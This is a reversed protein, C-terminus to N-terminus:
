PQNKVCRVSLGYNATVMRSSPTNGFNITFPIMQFFATNVFNARSSYFYAYQGIESYRVTDNFGDTRLGGPLVTFGTENTGIPENWHATGTEMLEVGRKKTQDPYVTDPTIRYPNCLTEWESLVPMHWDAPCLKGTMAAGFNYLRGYDRNNAASDNNYWCYAGTIVYGTDTNFGLNGWETSDTVKRIPTGDNLKGTRLNEAMWVQDGIQVVQYNNGDGDTCPIFDFNVTKDSEPIDTIVTGFNGSLGTFKLRDGQTYDMDITAMAAKGTKKLENENYAQNSTIKQIGITGSTKSNCLIKGSYQYSNGRISILYFGSKLGSIRFEQLSNELFSHVRGVLIGAMSYISITADGAEPPYIELVSFDIMPNPYIKIKAFQNDVISNVSTVISTLHLIDSGSITLSTGSTLNEVRVSTVSTSAGNGAFSIFFNQGNMKLGSVIYILCFLKIYIKM